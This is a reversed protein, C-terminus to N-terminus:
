DAAGGEPPVSSDEKTADNGSSGDGTSGEGAGDHSSSDGSHGDATADAPPLPLSNDDGQCACLV